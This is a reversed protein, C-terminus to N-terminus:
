MRLLVVLTHINLIWNKLYALPSQVSRVAGKLPLAEGKSSLFYDGKEVPKKKQGKWYPHGFTGFHVIFKPQTKKNQKKKLYNVM